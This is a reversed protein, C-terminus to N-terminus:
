FRISNLTTNKDPIQQLFLNKIQSFNGELSGAANNCSSTWLHKEVTQGSIVEFEYVYGSACVGSVNDKEGEFQEGKVLNNRDLAYVFEKYAKTNNSFSASNKVQDLYGTYLNLDRSAPSITLQYSEFDEDAVIPGRAIMRVSHGSSTDLLVSQKTDTSPNETDMSSGSFFLTRGVSILAAVAIAIVILIIIIPLIRSSSGKYMINISDRYLKFTLLQQLSAAM